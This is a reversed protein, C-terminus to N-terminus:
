LSSLLKETYRVLGRPYDAATLNFLSGTLLSEKNILRKFPSEMKDIDFFLMLSIEDYLADSILSSDKIYYAYSAMVFWNIAASNKNSICEKAIADLLM